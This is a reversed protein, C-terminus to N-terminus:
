TSSAYTILLTIGLGHRTFAHIGRVIRFVLGCNHTIELKRRSNCSFQAWRHVAKQIGSGRLLSRYTTGLRRYPIVVMRQSIALFLVTRLFQLKKEALNARLNYLGGVRDLDFRNEKTLLQLKWCQKRVRYNQPLLLTVSDM